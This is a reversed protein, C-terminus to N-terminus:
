SLLKQMQNQLSAAVKFAAVVYDEGKSAYLISRSSNVLLGVQKNVGNEFVDKLAGGQAGVGPILLFANPIINRIEKLYDSKTAGVVYMLRDANDYKLSTAIVKKFL